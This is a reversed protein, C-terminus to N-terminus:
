LDAAGIVQLIEQAVFAKGYSTDGVPKLIGMKVLQQVHRSASQYQKVGLLRQAQPITIVPSEFLIDTLRVVLASARVQTLRKRWSLQLDQLRKARAVADRAQETIGRLFFHVWQNWEGRESVAM